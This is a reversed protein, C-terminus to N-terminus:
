IQIKFLFSNQKNERFFVALLIRWLGVDIKITYHPPPDPYVTSTFISYLVQSARLPDVRRQPLLLPEGACVSLSEFGNDLGQVM